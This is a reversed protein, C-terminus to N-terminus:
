KKSSAIAELAQFARQRDAAKPISVFLELFRLSEAADVPEASVQAEVTFNKRNLHM